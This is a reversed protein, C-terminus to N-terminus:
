FIVKVLDVSYIVEGYYVVEINNGDLDIVFVGYYGLYYLWEGFVGNDKGGVVLVVVYFVDVIVCDCVQFVLYYCGILEGVVVESDVIFIFLEDVWFYMDGEGVIFIGIM